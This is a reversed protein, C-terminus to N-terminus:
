FLNRNLNSARYHKLSFSSLIKDRLTVTKPNGPWTCVSYVVITGTTDLATKGHTHERRTKTIVNRKPVNVRTYKYWAYSM